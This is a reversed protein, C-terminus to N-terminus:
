EAAPLINVVDQHAKAVEVLLVALYAAFPKLCNVAKKPAWMDQLAEM